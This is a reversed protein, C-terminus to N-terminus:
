TPALSADRPPFLGADLLRRDGLPERLEVTVRTSPNGPCTFMDDELPRAAFVLSISEAGDTISPPLLRGLM